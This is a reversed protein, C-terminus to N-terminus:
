AQGGEAEQSECINAIVHAIGAIFEGHLSGLADAMDHYSILREDFRQWVIADSLSRFEDGFAPANIDAIARMLNIRRTNRQRYHNAM